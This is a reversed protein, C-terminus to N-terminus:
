WLPCWSKEVSQKLLPLLIDGGPLPLEQDSEPNIRDDCKRLILQILEEVGGNYKASTRVYGAIRDRLKVWQSIEEPRAQEKGDGKCGVLYM